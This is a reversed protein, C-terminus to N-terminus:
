LVYAQVALPTWLALGLLFLFVGRRIEHARAVPDVPERRLPTGDPARVTITMRQGGTRLYFASALVFAAGVLFTANGVGLPTVAGVGASALGVVGYSLLWRVWVPQDRWAERLDM